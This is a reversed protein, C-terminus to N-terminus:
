NNVYEYFQLLINNIATYLSTFVTRCCSDDTDTLLYVWFVNHLLDSKLYLRKYFKVRHLLLQFLKVNVRGLGHIVAEVSESRQYEFIRRIVSNWCASLESIEKCQFTLAPSAYLLVSLSHAEQSTLLALEDVDHGHSFVSNCAAYFSRKVPNIDFKIHKGSVFHIGLYKIHECWEIIHGGLLMPSIKAKYTKGVDICHCKHINFQLSASCAIDYCRDLMEQLGTVSSSLLIIDDAYLLCGLFM